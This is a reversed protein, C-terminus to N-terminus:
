LLATLHDSVMHPYLYYLILDCRRKLLSFKINHEAFPDGSFAIHQIQRCIGIDHFLAAGPVGILACLDTLAPLIGLLVQGLIRQDTLLDFILHSLEVAQLGLM